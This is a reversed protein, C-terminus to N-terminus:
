NLESSNDMFRITHVMLICANFFPRFLDAWKLALSAVGGHFNSDIINVNKEYQCNLKIFSLNYIGYDLNHVNLYYFNLGADNPYLFITRYVVNNFYYPWEALLTFNVGDPKQFTFM